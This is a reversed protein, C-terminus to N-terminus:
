AVWWCIVTLVGIVTWVRWAVLETHSVKVGYRQDWPTIEDKNYKFYSLINCLPLALSIGLGLGRWAVMWTRKLAVGADLKGGIHQYEEIQISLLWRGPTTGWKSLAIVEAVAWWFMMTLGALSGFVWGPDTLEDIGGGGAAIFFGIFFLSVLFGPIGFLVVDVQKAWFRRWPILDDPSPETMPSFDPM